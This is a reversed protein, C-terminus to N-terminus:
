INQILVRFPVLINKSYRKLSLVVSLILVVKKVGLLYSLCEQEKQVPAGGGEGLNQPQEILTKALTTQLSM